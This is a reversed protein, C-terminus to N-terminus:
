RLGIPAPRLPRGSLEQCGEEDWWLEDRETLFPHLGRVGGGEHLAHAVADLLDTLDPWSDTFDGGDGHGAWGLRGTGPGPRQDIVQANGDASEAWPIWLPHWWPEDAWPQPTLGDVTRQRSRSRRAEDAQDWQDIM